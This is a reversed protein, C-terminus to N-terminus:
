WMDAFQDGAAEMGLTKKVLEHLEHVEYEIKDGYLEIRKKYVVKDYYDRLSHFIKSTEFRNEYDTEIWADFVFRIRARLLTKKVGEQMVEVPTQDWMRAYVDIWIRMWETDDRWGQWFFETEGITPDREKLQYEHFEFSRTKFWKATENYVKEFDFVGKFKIFLYKQPSLVKYQNGM